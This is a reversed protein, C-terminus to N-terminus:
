RRSRRLTALLCLLVGACGAITSPEPVSTAAASRQASASHLAPLEIQIPAPRHHACRGLLFGCLILFLCALSLALSYRRSRRM